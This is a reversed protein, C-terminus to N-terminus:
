EPCVIASKLALPGGVYWGQAVGLSVRKVARILVSLGGWFHAHNGPFAPM